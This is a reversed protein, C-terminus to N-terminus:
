RSSHAHNRGGGYLLMEEGKREDAIEEGGERVREGGYSESGM